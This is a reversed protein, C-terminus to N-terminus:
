GGLVRKDFDSLSFQKTPTLDWRVNRTSVIANAVILMAGFAIVTYLLVAYNAWISRRETSSDSM